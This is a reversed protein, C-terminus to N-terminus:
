LPYGVPNNEQQRVHRHQGPLYGAFGIGRIYKSDLGLIKVFTVQEKFQIAALDLASTKCDDVVGLRKYDVGNASVFVEAHEESCGMETIFLDPQGPYDIIVNDTFKVIVFSGTPLSLFNKTNGGLIQDPNVAIPFNALTGGYFRQFNPNTKSYYSEVMLDAFEANKTQGLCVHLPLILLLFKM